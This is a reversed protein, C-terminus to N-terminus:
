IDSERWPWANKDKDTKTAFDRLFNQTKLMYSWFSVGDLLDLGWGWKLTQLVAILNYSAHFGCYNSVTQKHVRLQYIKINQTTIVRIALNELM